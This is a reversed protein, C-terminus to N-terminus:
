EEPTEKHPALYTAILQGLEAVFVLIAAMLDLSASFEQATVPRTKTISRISMCERRKAPTPNVFVGVPYLGMLARHLV